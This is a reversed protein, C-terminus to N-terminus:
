QQLLKWSNTWHEYHTGLATQGVIATMGRYPTPDEKYLFYMHVLKSSPGIFVIFISESPHGFIAPTKGIRLGGDPMSFFVM